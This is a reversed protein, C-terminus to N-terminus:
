KGLGLLAAFISERSKQNVEICYERESIDGLKHADSNRLIFYKSYRDNELFEGSTNRFSIEIVKIQLDDPIFGLNSIISNSNRDIHALFVFGNYKRALNVIEDISLNISMILANEEETIVLDESNLILQNGFKKSNNRIKIRNEDIIKFFNFASEYNEFICVIHVDEISQVEIGPFVIINQKKGVEIVSKVNKISNHDTIAITDLGKLKSMNVINNPTMDDDACPSLASHIHFDYYVKM